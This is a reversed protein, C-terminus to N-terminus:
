LFFQARRLLNTRVAWRSAPGTGELVDHPWSAVLAASAALAAGSIGAAKFPARLVRVLGGALMYAGLAAVILAILHDDSPQQQAQQPPPSQQQATATAAM